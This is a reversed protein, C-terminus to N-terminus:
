KFNLDRLKILYNIAQYTLKIAVGIINKRWYEISLDVLHGVQNFSEMRHEIWTQSKPM